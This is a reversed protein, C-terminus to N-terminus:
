YRQLYNLFYTYGHRDTAEKQGSQRFLEAGEGHAVRLRESPLDPSPDHHRVGQLARGPQGDIDAGLQADWRPLEREAPARELGASPPHSPLSRRRYSAGNRAEHPRLSTPVPRALAEEFMKLVAAPTERSGRSSAVRPRTSGTVAISRPANPLPRTMTAGRWASGARRLRVLAFVRHSLSPLRM